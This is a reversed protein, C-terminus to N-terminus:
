SKEHATKRILTSTKGFKFTKWLMILGLSSLVVLWFTIFRFILSIAMAAEVPLSYAMLMGSMAAEFTGLGGPLLPIMAAFYSVFTIAFLVFLNITTFQSVILYLKIPFLAWIFLSLLFQWFWERPKEGIIQTDRTFDALWKKLWLAAKRQSGIKQVRANLHGTFFLAYILLASLALLIALLAIRMGLTSLFSIQKSLTLMALINLILLSSLSLSKQITVLSTAQNTGLGLMRKLQIIRAIEGGIKEGPNAADVVVGYANVILLRGFPAKLNLIKGLRFWQYNLALQTLIQLSILTLFLAWPMTQVYSWLLAFDTHIAIYVLIGVTIVALLNMILAAPKQPKKLFRKM